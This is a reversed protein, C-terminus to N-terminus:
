FNIIAELMEDVESAIVDAASLEDRKRFGWLVGIVLAAGLNVGTEVDISTDGIFATEEPSIGLESLVALPGDPSPKRAIGDKGGATKDFIEPFFHDIAERVIADQKNSVVALTVGRSRLTLLAETIGAFRETLYYPDAKYDADYVKLVREIEESDTVGFYGLSRTILTRAGNGAFYKCQDVTISGYGFKHLAKNVFHTITTITDLVTGDLDFICCKIM